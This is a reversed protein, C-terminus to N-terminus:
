SIAVAGGTRRGGAGGPIGRAVRGLINPPDTTIRGTVEPSIAAQESDSQSVVTGLGLKGLLGRVNDNEVIELAYEPM